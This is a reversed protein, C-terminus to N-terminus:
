IQLKNKKWMTCRRRIAQAMMQDEIWMQGPRYNSTVVFRKYILPVTGGKIEGTAAWKDMWRKLHHGLVPTDLDDLLVTAQGTYGDWWKNQAKIYLDDGWMQFVEHTKGTGPPGHIWIGCTSTRTSYRKTLAEQALIQRAKQLRPVSYISILDRDVLDQLSSHQLEANTPKALAGYGPPRKGVEWLEGDKGCYNVNDKLRGNMKEIRWASPILPKLGVLSKKKPIVFFGQIHPTGTTPAIEQGGAMFELVKNEHLKQVIAKWDPPYNNWTLIWRRSQLAPM